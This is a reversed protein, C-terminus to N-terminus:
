SAAATLPSPFGVGLEDGLIVYNYMKRGVEILIRGGRVKTELSVYCACYVNNLIQPGITDEDVSRGFINVSSIGLM